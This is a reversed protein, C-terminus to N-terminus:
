WILKTLLNNLDQDSSMKDRVNGLTIQLQILTGSFGTYATKQAEDMQDVLDAISAIEQQARRLAEVASVIKAGQSLSSNVTFAAM